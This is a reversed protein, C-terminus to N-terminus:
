RCTVGQRASVRVSRFRGIRSLNGGEDKARIAYHYRRGPCLESVTLSLRSGRRRPAFRCTGKCLSRARRFRRASTIPRTSQKIIYRRVPPGKRGDSGPARWRLRVRARRLARASRRAPRGPRALDRLTRARALNSLGGPRGASNLPRVAYHYLRNPVLDEVTLRITDRPRNVAFACVGGCLSLARDVNAATLPARSQKVVYRRVPLAYAPAAGGASPATFTLEIKRASVARAALDTVSKPAASQARPEGASSVLLLAAVALAPLALGRARRLM